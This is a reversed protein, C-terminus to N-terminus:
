KTVWQSYAPDTHWIEFCNKKYDGKTAPDSGYEVPDGICLHVQCRACKTSPRCGHRRQVKGTRSDAMSSGGCVACNLPHNANDKRARVPVHLDTQTQLNPSAECLEKALGERFERLTPRTTNTHPQYDVWNVYANNICTDVLMKLYMVVPWKQKIKMNVGYAARLADARDVGGMKQQYLEVIDVAARDRSPQEGDELVWSRRKLTTATGQAVSSMLRVEKTDKWVCAVIKAQKSPEGYLMHALASAGKEADAVQPELHRPWGKRNERVTGTLYKTQTDWLEQITGPDTFLNDACFKTYKRFPAALRLVVGRAMSTTEKDEQVVKGCYIEMCYVYGTELDAAAWVKAGRKTPKNPMYTKLVCWGKTGYIQEDITVWEPQNRATFWAASVLSSVERIPWAKDYQDSSKNLKEPQHSSFRLSVKIQQWRQFSMVSVVWSQRWMGYWYDRKSPLQLISMFISIGLFKKLETLSVFQVGSGTREIHRKTEMIIKAYVEGTHLMQFCALPTPTPQRRVQQYNSPMAVLKGHRGVMMPNVVDGPGDVWGMKASHARHEDGPALGAQQRDAKSMKAVKVAKVDDWTVGAPGANSYAM